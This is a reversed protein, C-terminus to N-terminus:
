ESPVEQMENQAQPMREKLPCWQFCKPEVQKKDERCTNVSMTSTRTGILVIEFRTTKKSPFYNQMNIQVFSTKCSDQSYRYRYSTGNTGLRWEMM